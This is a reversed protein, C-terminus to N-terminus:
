IVYKQSETGNIGNEQTLDNMPEKMPLIKDKWCFHLLFIFELVLLLGIKSWM